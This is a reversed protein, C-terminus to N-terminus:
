VSCSVTAASRTAMASEIGAPTREARRRLSQSSRAMLTTLRNPKDNGLKASPGIRIRSNEILSPHSGTEPEPLKALRTSGAMVIPLASAAMRVRM